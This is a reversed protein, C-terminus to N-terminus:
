PRVLAVKRHNSDKHAARSLYEVRVQALGQEYFGLLKAARVSVDILRNGRYPGRDNLRVVVSRSNELNTVRVYSPLPLTPHAASLSDADFREGIATLRGHFSMGYWSAKGEARYNPDAKPLYTRGGIQYPAGASYVSVRKPVRRDAKRAYLHSLRARALRAKRAENLRHRKASRDQLKQIHSLRAHSAAGAAHSVCKSPNRNDHSVAATAVSIGVVIVAWCIATNVWRM